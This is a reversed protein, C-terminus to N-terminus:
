KKSSLWTVGDDNIGIEDDSFPIKHINVLDRIYQKIRDKAPLNHFASNHRLGVAEEDIIKILKNAPIKHADSIVIAMLLVFPVTRTSKVPKVEHGNVGKYEISPADKDAFLDILGPISFPKTKTLKTDKSTEHKISLLFHHNTVLFHRVFIEHIFYYYKPETRSYNHDSNLLEDMESIFFGANNLPSYQSYETYDDDTLERGAEQAVRAKEHFNTLHEAREKLYDERRYIALHVNDLSYYAHQITQEYRLNFIKLEEEYDHFDFYPLWMPLTPDKQYNPNIYKLRASSNVSHLHDLISRLKHYMESYKGGSSIIRNKKYAIYETLFNKLIDDSNKIISLEGFLKDLKAEYNDHIKQVSRNSALQRSEIDNIIPSFIKTTRIQEVYSAIDKFFLIKNTTKSLLREQLELWDYWRKTSKSM